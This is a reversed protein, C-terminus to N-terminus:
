QTTFAVVKDIAKEDLALMMLRDIGLAVGACDPLGAELAALLYDDIAAPDRGLDYSKQQDLLFRRRQEEADNLEFYGNALEIGGAYLEFRQAVPQGCDDHYIRALAAQSAPFDYIFIPRELSMRPEIYEALLLHLWDDKDTSSMQVDLLQRSRHELQECSAQHPNLSLYKEFIAQYSYRAFAADIVLVLAVLEEVETMLQHHDFGPRYWELMSFEPNHRSSREGRRFAKCIQYIAGSGAALLRKMAYEPSSQLYYPADNNACFSLPNETAIVAMHPDTVSYAALLPTEVEWVKKDAFFERIRALIQARRQLGEISSSPWWSLQSM